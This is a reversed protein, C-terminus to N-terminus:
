NVIINISCGNTPLNGVFIPHKARCVGEAGARLMFTCTCLAEGRSEHPGPAPNVTRGTFGLLDAM